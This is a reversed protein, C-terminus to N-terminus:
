ALAGCHPVGCMRRVKAGRRSPDFGKCLQGCKRHVTEFYQDTPGDAPANPDKGAASLLDGIGVQSARLVCPDVLLIDGSEIESGQLDFLMSSGGTAWAVHHFFSQPVEMFEETGDFIFKDVERSPYDTITVVGDKNVLQPIRSDLVRCGVPACVRVKPADHGFGPAHPSQAIYKNFTEAYSAVDKSDAMNAVVREMTQEKQVSCVQLLVYKGTGEVRARMFTVPMSFRDGQPWPFNYKVEGRRAKASRDFRWSLPAWSRPVPELCELTIEDTLQFPNRHVGPGDRLPAADVRLLLQPGYQGALASSLEEDQMFAADIVNQCSSLAGGM